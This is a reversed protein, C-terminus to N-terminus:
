EWCKQLASAEAEAANKPTEAATKPITGCLPQMVPHGYTATYDPLAGDAVPTVRHQVPNAPGTAALYKVIVEVLEIPKGATIPRKEGDRMINSPDITPLDAEDIVNGNVDLLKPKGYSYLLPNGDDGENVPLTYASGPDRDDNSTGIPNCNPCNNLKFPSQEYWYGSAVLAPLRDQTKATFAPGYAWTYEGPPDTQLAYTTVWPTIPASWNATFAGPKPGAYGPAFYETRTVGNTIYTHVKEGASCGSSTQEAVPLRECSMDAQLNRARSDGPATRFWYPDFDVHFGEASYAFLWGGAWGMNNYPAARVWPDGPDSSFVAQSSNDVQNRIQGVHVRSAKGVRAGIPIIHYLDNRTINGVPIHTGYRFGRVTAIDAQSWWRIADAVFDHSTGELVAPMDEHSFNSRHLDVLTTGVVSDLSGQLYTGSFSNKHKAERCTADAACSAFDTTFPARVQAVKTAVARDERISDDIRHATFEYSEIHGGSLELEIEGLMTGDQGEEILLTKHGTEAYDYTHIEIPQTTEEHMDSNLIIDIYNEGSLEPNERVMEINVGVEIETALVVVDVNQARLEKVFKPVEKICDTFEIGDVVWSGVVQPGRRTTCGVIGVKVNGVTKISYPPLIREGHEAYWNSWDEYQAREHVRALTAPIKGSAFATSSSGNIDGNADVDDATNYLNSALAGWRKSVGNEGFFEKFRAPGYVYEWNGPAFADVGLMDVVDVLAQGRTYLAEGSGQTTDGTNILLSNGDGDQDERINKIVTAMRALGGEMRGDGDSRVNPRPTTHGHIDGIHILTIEKKSERKGAYAGPLAVTGALAVAMVSILAHKRFQM